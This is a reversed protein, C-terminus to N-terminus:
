RGQGLMWVRPLWKALDGALWGWPGRGSALMDGALGHACVGLRAADWPSYGQCLLAGIMGSLVDGMGGTGMGSNGTMNICIEGEPSATVTRAGKLVVVAGTKMALRRVSDLRDAQVQEVSCGCLRAMEGPHPTLVLSGCSGAAFGEMEGAMATLADADVVVPIDVERILACVLKMTDEHLGLGPGIVMAKKRELARRIDERAGLSPTGDGTEPLAHTMAETLKTALVTQSSAACAVTVLGAGSHLSGTAALAAAGTKGRSGGVILVHGFTGKHGSEPRARLHGVFENRGWTETTIGAREVLFGPIGINVVHLRGTYDCGPWTVHGIKPLAMTCTIDANVAHGLPHGTDASLGSAIDVAAVPTKSRNMFRVARAFRGQLSRSLGTGFMADVIVGADEFMAQNDILVAEEVCLTMPIRLAKVIELNVLADGRFKNEPALLIIAAKIGAQVLHRAIVFGDGGNNGPGAVILAGKEALESAYTSMIIEATGRGANEMLLLGHIGLDEITQRDLSQMQKATVVKM